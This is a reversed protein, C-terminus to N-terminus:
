EVVIRYTAHCAVCKGVAVSIARLADANNVQKKELRDALADFDRHVAFGLQKMPLPLKRLIAPHEGGIRLATDLGAARATVAAQAFRQQEVDAAVSGLATLLMRMEELVLDRESASLLVATRRDGAAAGAVAGGSANSTKPGALGAEAKNSALLGDNGTRGVTLVFVLLGTSLLTTFSLVSIIVKQM